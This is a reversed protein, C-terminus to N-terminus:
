MDFECKTCKVCPATQGTIIVQVLSSNHKPFLLNKLIFVFFDMDVMVMQVGPQFFIEMCEAAGNSTYVFLITMWGDM